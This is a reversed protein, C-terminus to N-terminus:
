FGRRLAAARRSAALRAVHECDPAVLDDPRATVHDDGPGCEFYAQGPSTTVAVLTDDGEGGRITGRNSRLVDNGAGGDLLVSLGNFDPANDIAGWDNGDGLAVDARCAADCGFFIPGDPRACSVKNLGLPLCGLVLLVGPDSVVVRTSTWTLTVHNAEGSWATYRLEKSGSTSATGALAPPALLGGGAVVLAVVLLSRRM